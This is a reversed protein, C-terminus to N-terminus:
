GLNTQRGKASEGKSADGIAKEKGTSTCCAQDANETKQKDTEEEEKAIKIACRQASKNEKAPSNAAAPKKMPSPAAVGAALKEGDKAKVQKKQKKPAVVPAPEGKGQSKRSRRGGLGRHSLVADRAKKLEHKDKLKDDCYDQLLPRICDMAAAITPHDHPVPQPQPQPLEGFLDARLQVIQRGQEYGSILLVRDVRQAAWIRHHTRKHEHEWLAAAQLRTTTLARVEAMTMDLVESDGDDFELNVKEEDGMAGDDTVSLSLERRSKKCGLKKAM